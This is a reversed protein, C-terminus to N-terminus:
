FLWDKIIHFVEFGLLFVIISVLIGLFGIFIGLFIVLGDRGLLGFSMVLIGLGPIFNSFPMPIIVFGAFIFILAGLIREAVITMMFLMRPRLVKEIKAIHPSSKRVTTALLSRKITYSSFRSPLKPAKLGIMMQFAFILLPISVLSPLPPPLPMILAGSFVMLTLGFGAGEMSDILDSIKVRDSETNEVFSEIKHTAVARRKDM